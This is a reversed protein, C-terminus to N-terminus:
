AVHLRLAKQLRSVINNYTSGPPCDFLVYGLSNGSHVFQPIQDGIRYNLFYEFAEPVAAVLEKEYAIECLQGACDSGFVWSGCPKIEDFAPPVEIKEGLAFQLTAM